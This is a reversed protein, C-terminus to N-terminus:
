NHTGYFAFAFLSEALAMQIGINEAQRLVGNLKILLLPFPCFSVM